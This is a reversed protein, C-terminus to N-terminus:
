RGRAPSDAFRDAPVGCLARAAAVSMPRALPFLATVAVLPLAVGYAGFQVGLGGTFMGGEDLLPGMVLTGVMWYPMFLAGGVILHLWRRRARQGLLATAFRRM